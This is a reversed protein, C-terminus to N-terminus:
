AVDPTPLPGVLYRQITPGIRAVVAERDMDAVPPLRLISRCLALGLMQTAVLGARQAGEVPDGVLASVAPGLQDQFIARLRDAAAADTAASRLLMLLTDGDPDDEWRRLYHAVLTAGLRRSPIGALDPLRLNVGVAAEFLQEKSGYYRMVMSPDIDAGAAISRITAKQYGDATFRAQASRLIAARTM